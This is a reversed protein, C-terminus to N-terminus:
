LAPDFYAGPEGAIIRDKFVLRCPQHFAAMVGGDALRIAQVGCDNRLVQVAPAPRDAPSIMYAYEGLKNAEHLITLPLVSINLAERFSAPIDSTSDTSIKIKSM